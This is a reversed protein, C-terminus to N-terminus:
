LINTEGNHVRRIPVDGLDWFTLFDNAQPVYTSQIPSNDITHRMFILLCRCASTSIKFNKENQRAHENSFIQTIFLQAKHPM